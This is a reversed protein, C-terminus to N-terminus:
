AVLTLEAHRLWEAEAVFSPDEVVVEILPYHDCIFAALEVDRAFKGTLVISAIATGQFELERILELPTSVVLARANVRSRTDADTAMVLTKPIDFVASAEPWFTPKKIM